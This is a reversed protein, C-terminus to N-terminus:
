EISIGADNIVQSWLTRANEVTQALAEPAGSQPLVAMDTLTQSLEPDALADNIAQNLWSVAEEPMGDPGIVYVMGSATFGPLTEDITPLDPQTSVREPTGVALLKMSGDKVLPMMASYSDIAMQVRGAVLDVIAAGTGKYPVHQIDTGSLTKFLEGALHSSSGVGSSSFSVEDPHQKLYDILEPVTNAPIDPHVVLLNPVLGIDAVPQFDTEADYPLNAYLFPNLIQVGPTATLVTYGDAESTAVSQAGLSGGMGPRNVIVFTADTQESIKGTVMRAISDTAGGASFPVVVNIPRDPFSQASAAVPLFGISLALLSRVFSRRIMM